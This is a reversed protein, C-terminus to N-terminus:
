YFSEKTLSTSSVFYLIYFDIREDLVM